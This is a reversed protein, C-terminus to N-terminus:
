ASNQADNAFVADNQAGLLNHLVLHHDTAGILACVVDSTLNASKAITNHRIATGLDVPGTFLCRLVLGVETNLNGTGNKSVAHGQLELHV